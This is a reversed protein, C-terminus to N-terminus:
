SRLVLELRRARWEGWSTMAARRRSESPQPGTSVRVAMVLGGVFPAFVALWLWVGRGFLSWASGEFHGPLDGYFTNAMKFQELRTLAWPYALGLTLFIMVWWFVACVSYRWASGTQRFRLGRYITRTLRYRRARYVAFQGLFALLVFALVGSLKGLPGLGLAFVFFAGYLPVLLTIAVLFGILLEFPTGSYELNDSSIETNSWLFRRVDTVLWFRYIGLTVLLLVAGRTMLRWFVRDDGYFRVTNRAPRGTQASQDVVSM